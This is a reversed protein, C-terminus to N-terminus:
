RREEASVAVGAEILTGRGDTARVILEVPGLSVRDGTEIAEGFEQQLFHRVSLARKEPRVVAGYFEALESIPTEPDVSFDGFFERDAPDPPLPNAILRDLLAIRHPRVFVYITDGGRLRDLRMSRISKGERVVLAPKVWRPLNKRQLLPSGDHLRYAVLEHAADDPLDLQIRDVTSPRHPVVLGLRRALPALGWGQVILSVLVAIFTLNFVTRAGDIAAMLPLIALLISVAGRLGVFGVFLNEQWSFRFPALSAAVALPRALLALVFGLLLGPALLAPFESPTALLGLAVFMAIQALWTLGQQFRKLEGVRRIRRNAATLGAVYVALFGSGDVLQTAAYVALALAAVLVAYLGGDLDLRAVLREILYGGVLGFVLGLGMQRVFDLLADLWSGAERGAGFTAVLALTLFVAMPDNCGSEIELTSRVRDRLHIGGARLLFFVAAADTSSLIAGLLLAQPWTLGAFWHGAAACLAGTLLVGLTALTIAPAAALRFTRWPTGFGSDFLVLALAVCGIKFAVASDDFDVGGIGDEGALFGIALFVLLIPAGARFAFRTSLVSIAVLTAVFLLALNFGQVPGM